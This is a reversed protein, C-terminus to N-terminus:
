AGKVTELIESLEVGAGAEDYAEEIDDLVRAVVEGL